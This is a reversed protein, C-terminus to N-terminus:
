KQSVGSSSVRIGLDSNSNNVRGCIPTSNSQQRFPGVANPFRWSNSSSSWEPHLPAWFCRIPMAYCTLPPWCFNILALLGCVCECDSGVVVSWTEELSPTANYHEFNKKCGRIRDSTTWWVVQAFKKIERLVLFKEFRLCSQQSLIDSWM